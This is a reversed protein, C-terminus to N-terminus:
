IKAYRGAIVQRMVMGMQDIIIEPDSYIGVKCALDIVSGAVICLTKLILEADGNISSALIANAIVEALDQMGKAGPTMQENM